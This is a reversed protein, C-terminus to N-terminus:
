ALRLAYWDSTHGELFFFLLRCSVEGLEEWYDTSPQAPRGCNGAGDVTNCHDGTRLGFGCPVEKHSALLLGKVGKKGRM